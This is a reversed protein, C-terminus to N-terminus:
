EIASYMDEPTKLPRWEGENVHNALALAIVTDDHHGKEAEMRGNDAVIFRQMEQLTAEDYVELAGDRHEARLKDIVLPKSKESTYFGVVETETDTVKDVVVEQYVNPYDEDKHLVRNTLIGHNNRECCIMADNYFRGLHALVTGFHDPDYRDSRWVATQRRQSDLVQAVSYDKRVGAGVDGGIFYDAHEDHPLYCHLEGLPDDEWRLRRKGKEDVYGRLSKRAIPKRKEELAVAVRDPNFVPRGSTLFAEDIDCPYEQRFLDAGKEAVRLRRFMLQEDDLGFAAVLKDEDPTREFGPTLPARYQDDWFWPLFVLEFDSEGKRAAGCHEWFLNFGNATSEEFVVTGPLTPIADMLGSYNAPASNKPWWAVESLHAATITDGRVIGDGGATSIRYGSDLKGFVLERRGANRTDPRLIAPCSDHLRKTMQFITETATIDHAVVLAKQAQRQSVWWYLFAEVFTSSGMQRGKLIVIRVYGRRDLQAQIRGLLHRQARNLTLKILRQDKTRITVANEAYYAFDEFLRRRVAMMEPTIAM